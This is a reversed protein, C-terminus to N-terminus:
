NPVLSELIEFFNTILILKPEAAGEGAVERAMLFREGDETVDYFDRGSNLDYDTSITFLAEVGTVSGSAPDIQAAMMERTNPDVYFLERGSHGWVPNIGQGRSVRREGPEGDVDPFPRM